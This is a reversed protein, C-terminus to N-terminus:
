YKYGHKKLLDGDCDVMAQYRRGLSGFTNTFWDKDADLAAIGEEIREKLEEKNRPWGVQQAKKKLWTRLWSWANEVLMLEQNKAPYCMPDFECTCEELPEYVAVTRTHARRSGDAAANVNIERHGIVRKCPPLPTTGWHDVGFTANLADVPKVGRMCHDHQWETFKGARKLANLGNKFNRNNIIEEYLAATFKCEYIHFYLVGGQHIALFVGYIVVQDSKQINWVNVTSLDTGKDVYIHDRNKNFIEKLSFGAEDAQIINLYYEPGADLNAQAGLKRFRKHHPTLVIRNLKPEARRLYEDKIKWICWYSLTVWRDTEDCYYSVGEATRISAETKLQAVVAQTVSETAKRKRKTYQRDEKLTFKENNQQYKHIWTKITEPRPITNDFVAAHNTELYRRIDRILARESLGVRKCTLYATYLVAKQSDSLRQSRRNVQVQQPQMTEHLLITFIFWWSFIFSLM